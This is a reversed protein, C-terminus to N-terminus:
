EDKLIDLLEKYNENDEDNMQYDYILGIAKNIINKLREIKYIYELIGRIADTTLGLVYENDNLDLKLAEELMERYEM